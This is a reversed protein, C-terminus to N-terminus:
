FPASQVQSVNRLRKASLSRESANEMLLRCPLGCFGFGCVGGCGRPLGTVSESAALFCFASGHVSISVSAFAFVQM